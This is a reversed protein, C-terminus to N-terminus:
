DADIFSTEIELESVTSIFHKEDKKGITILDSPSNSPIDKYQESIYHYWDLKKCWKEVYIYWNYFEQNFIFKNWVQSHM